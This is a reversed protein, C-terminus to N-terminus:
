FVSDELTESGAEEAYSIVEIETESSGTKEYNVTVFFEKINSKPAPVPPFVKTWLHCIRCILSFILLIFCITATVAILFWKTWPKQEDNGVYIPQSWESSPGVARCVSSVAARVQISYESIGDIVSVFTNTTMKETQLYGKRTNYIKVEYDFCHVPFASVPKEWQISLCTGEIEATVKAPPNVRDIAHLAFLEDFPKIVAEESSGNVYVALLDHGKSNIFTRPFWCAINRQLTDKSYEQCEETWSGYRYYLFYQTDEPADKGVLWTCHLSVQYPRLHTYNNAKTNTTCTLNVISTGPSGPPARLEASVWSSPQLSRDNWPVTQVSASFGKHLITIRRSETNRTEYDEEQPANIKVHYGLQVNRQEQDTNPEWRLLVQALNIAKITFNVPPLLLFKKDPLLDVQLIVTAGLLILSAPAMIIIDSGPGEPRGLLSWQSRLGPLLQPVASWRVAEAPLHSPRPSGARAGGVGQQSKGNATSRRTDSVDGRRGGPLARPSSPAAPGTLPRAPYRRTRAAPLPLPPSSALQRRARARAPDQPLRTGPATLPRKRVLSRLGVHLDRPRTDAM